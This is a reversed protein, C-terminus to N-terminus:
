SVSILKDTDIDLLIGNTQLSNKIEKQNSYPRQLDVVRRFFDLGMLTPEGGQWVFEVVPTPQSEIYGKVFSALVKDSMRYNTCTSYLAHKELYFCYACNLNCAPGIPKAVDHFGQIECSLNEISVENDM